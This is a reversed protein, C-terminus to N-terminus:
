DDEDLVLWSQDDSRGDCYMCLTQGFPNIKLHRTLGCCECRSPGMVTEAEPFTALIDGRTVIGCPRDEALVIVSGVAHRRMLEAAERATNRGNLTVVPATMVEAVTAERRARHLDCTCVMGVLAEGELVPFHHCTSRRALAMVGAIPENASTTATLAHMIGNLPQNALSM